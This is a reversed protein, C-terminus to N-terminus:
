PTQVTALYTGPTSDYVYLGMVRNQFVTNATVMSCGDPSCLRTAAVDIPYWTARGFFPQDGPTAPIFAMSSAQASSITALNFGGPVATIGDFHTNLQPTNGYNYFRPRGFAGTQENYNMLFARMNGHPSSGHALSGGALTYTPSGPGGDQWIGYLTTGSALSGGLQLLTWQQTTMNYIFANGSVGIGINLDYNGVVLDGMTSHAITDMVFCGPQDPPCARVGGVTNSGDAPVDIPTWSGGRGSVPGLYIMGHNLVNDNSIRYSGVARVQGAPITDPNYTNTDPGYFTGTEFGPFPPTLAPVRRAAGTLPGQYLFPKTNRTGDGNAQSGTLIVKGNTTGRVGTVIDGHKLIASISGTSAADRGTIPSATAPLAMALVATVAGGLLLPACLATKKRVAARPLDAARRIADHGAPDHPHATAAPPAPLGAQAPSAQNGTM